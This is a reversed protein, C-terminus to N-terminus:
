RWELPPLLDGAGFGTGRWDREWVYLAYEQSGTGAGTFSPRGAIPILGRLPHERYLAVRGVGGLFSLPLLFALRGGRPAVARPATLMSLARRVHLEADRFPPNGLILDWEELAHCVLPRLFDAEKIGDARPKIDIGLVRASPWHAEAQRVFVGSGASPELIGAPAAPLLRDRLLTCIARALEAPTDYADLPARDAMAKTMQAGKM